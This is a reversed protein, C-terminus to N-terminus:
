VPRDGCGDGDDSVPECRGGAVCADWRAFTVEFRSLAFPTAISVPHRPKEDQHGSADLDSGMVFNGAPIVVM